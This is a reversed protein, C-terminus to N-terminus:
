MMAMAPLASPTNPRRRVTVLETRLKRAKTPLDADITLGVACQRREGDILRLLFDSRRRLRGLCHLCCRARDGANQHHGERQRKQQCAAIRRHRLRRQLPRLDGAVDHVSVLALRPRPPWLVTALLPSLSM